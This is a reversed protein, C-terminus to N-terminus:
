LVFHKLAKLENQLYIKVLQLDTKGHERKLSLMREYVDEGKVAKIRERYEEEHDGHIGYKHEWTTLVIANDLEYRLRYNPKRGIHHVQLINEGGIKKGKKESLESKYGAKKLAIEKWLEDCEKELKKRFIQKSM